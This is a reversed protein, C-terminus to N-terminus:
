LTRTATTYEAPHRGVFRSDPQGRAQLEVPLGAQQDDEKGFTEQKRTILDDASPERWDYPCAVNQEDVRQGVFKFPLRQENGLARLEQDYRYYRNSAPPYEFEVIRRAEPSRIELQPPM